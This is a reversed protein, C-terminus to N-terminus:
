IRSAQVDKPSLGAQLVGDKLNELPEYDRRGKKTKPSCTGVTKMFDRKRWELHLRSDVENCQFARVIIRNFRCVKCKCSVRSCCLNGSRPEVCIYIKKKGVCDASGLRLTRMRPNLLGGSPFCDKRMGLRPNGVQSRFYEKRDAPHQIRLHSDCTTSHFTIRITKPHNEVANRAPAGWVGRQKWPEVTYPHLM